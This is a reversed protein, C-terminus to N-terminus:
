QENTQKENTAETWVARAQSMLDNVCAEVNDYGGKPSFTAPIEVGLLEEIACIVEIVVLSDIEPEWSRPAVPTITAARGPRLLAQDAAQDALSGQRLDRRRRSSVRREPVSQGDAGYRGGDSYRVYIYALDSKGVLLSRLKKSETAV